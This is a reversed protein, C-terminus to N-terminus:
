GPAMSRRRQLLMSGPVRITVGGSIRVLGHWDIPLPEDM